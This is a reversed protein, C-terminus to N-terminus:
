VRDNPSASISGSFRWENLRPPVANISVFGDKWFWANFTLKRRYWVNAGVIKAAERAEADLAGAL